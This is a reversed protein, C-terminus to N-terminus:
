TGGGEADPRDPTARAGIGPDPTCREILDSLQDRHERATRSALVHAATIARGYEIDRYEIRSQHEARETDLLARLGTTEAILARNEAAVVDREGEARAQALLAAEVEARAEAVEEAADQEARDREREAAAIRNAADREVANARLIADRTATRAERATALALGEVEVARSLREAMMARAQEAEACAHEAEAIRHDAQRRIEDVERDVAAPDTLRAFLDAVDGAVTALEGRLESYRDLLGALTHAGETIPRPGPHLVAVEAGTAERLVRMAKQATHNTDDCYRRPAGRRGPTRAPLPTGCGPFQCRGQSSATANPAVANSM